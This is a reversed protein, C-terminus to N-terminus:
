GQEMKSYRGWYSGDESAMAKFRDAEEKTDFEIERRGREDSGESVVIVFKPKPNDGSMIISREKMVSAKEKQDSRHHHPLSARHRTHPKNM